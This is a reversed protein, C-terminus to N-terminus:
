RRREGGLISSVGEVEWKSPHWVRWPNEHLEMRDELDGLAALTAQISGVTGERTQEPPRKPNDPSSPEALLGYEELHSKLLEFRERMKSGLGLAKNASPIGDNASMSGEDETLLERNKVLSSKTTYTGGNKSNEDTEDEDESDDQESYSEHWSKSQSDALLTQREEADTVTNKNSGLLSNQHLRSRFNRLAQPLSAMESHSSGGGSLPDVHKAPAFSSMQNRLDSIQEENKDIWQAITDWAKRNVGFHTTCLTKTRPRIGPTRGSYLCQFSKQPSSKWPMLSFAKRTWSQHRALVAQAAQLSEGLRQTMEATRLLFFRFEEIPLELSHPQDSGLRKCRTESDTIASELSM